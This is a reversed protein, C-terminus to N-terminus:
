KENGLVKNKFTELQSQLEKIGTQYLTVLKENSELLPIRKKYISGSSVSIVEDCRNTEIEFSFAIPVGTASWSKGHILYTKGTDQSDLMSYGDFKFDNENSNSFQKHFAILLANFKLNQVEGNTARVLMSDSCAYCISFLSSLILAAAIKNFLLVM